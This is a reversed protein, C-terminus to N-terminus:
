GCQAPPSGRPRPYSFAAHGHIVSRLELFRRLPGARRPARRFVRRVVRLDRRDNGGPMAIWEGEEAHV